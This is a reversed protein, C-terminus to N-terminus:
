EVLINVDRPIFPASKDNMTVHKLPHPQPIEELVKKQPAEHIHIDNDIFPESADHETRVHNLDHKQGIEAILERHHNQSIHVDSEIIPKSSDRTQTHKLLSKAEELDKANAVPDVWQVFEGKHKDEEPTFVYGIKEELAHTAQQTKEGLTHAAQSTKEGITHAAQSTKEGITFAAQSTKEGITHTVSQAAQSTKEGLSYAVQSTKEGLTYAAQTTMQKATNIASSLKEKGAVLMEGTSPMVPAVQQIHTNKPIFPKSRDKTPASKLQYNHERIDAFIRLQPAERIHLDTDLYPASADRTEVHNLDRHQRLEAFLARHRNENIHVSSDIIPKSSDRTAVHRLHSKVLSLDKPSAVLDFFKVFGSEEKQEYPTFKYGMKEELKHAVQQTKEGLSWAVQQATNFASSFIGETSPMVSSPKENFKKHGVKPIVPVSRDWTNVHKLQYNHGRIDEFIQTQPSPRIRLSKDWVPASADRTEVHNLAPRQRLEAFLAKHHNQIIHADKEIVPKSNDRTQVHKLQSKMLVLDKPTALPDVFTQFESNQDTTTPWDFGIKEGLTHTVQSTKKVVPILWM